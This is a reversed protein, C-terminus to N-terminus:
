SIQVQDQSLAADTVFDASSRAFTNLRGPFRCKIKRSHQAQWSIQVQDQSLTTGAVFEASSRAFTNRRGRSRCLERTWELAVRLGRSECEWLAADTVFAVARPFVISGAVFKCNLTVSGAALGCALCLGKRAPWGAIHQAQWVIGTGKYKKIAKEREKRSEASDVKIM